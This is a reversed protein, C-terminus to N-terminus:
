WRRWPRVGTGKYICVQVYRKWLFLWILLLEREQFMPGDLKTNVEM